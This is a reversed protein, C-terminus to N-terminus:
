NNKTIKMKNERDKFRKNDNALIIILPFFLEFHQLATETFGLAFYSLLLIASKWSMRKVHWGMWTLILMLQTSFFIGKSLLSQLYGSDFMANELAETRLFHIGYTQYYEQYLVLRGSLITNLQDSYPHLLVYLSIGMLFIPTLSVIKAM